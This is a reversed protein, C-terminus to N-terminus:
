GPSPVPARTSGRQLRYLTYRADRYAVPLAPVLASRRRDIVLWSAGCGRPIGLDGTRFFRREEGRRAYPRNRTTDAVHGPPANCVYVPAVAAIRYSSELDSYVTAGRPVRERLAQVLGATLPSPPRAPSPSWARLGHVFVPLLFLASAFAATREARARRLPGVALAAVAGGVAVWTAWAPGGGQLRYGFDGPYRSQFVIGATLALPAALPGALTALVGMGGAFAVGFPLFGALRRSQSLSVLDSFPAFAWPLLTLAFIALSAGAVYAAWRRASALGALPLLLLAAVAVAGSRSILEPALSFSDPARVRLQGAYQGLGRVREAASPSVSATSRVVPLLWAFFLGAPVVLAALALSGSRLDARTWALRVLLFGAFPIWLFVAYTPHVVALVLAAAAASALGGVTPRRVAAFALALAAPVLIQRSATAPLGLSTYAGGYGPAMVLLAVSAGAAVAAPAARAFLAHAAEYAALVAAPALISAEHLVVQSPDVMAVKAILALFGQWLPLAYGPHLGGDPFEGVATLSLADLSVLKRVRALHFLGDGGIEGAVRWLLLGLLIGGIWMAASGPVMPLRGRRLAFPMAVLGALLVLALALMLSAGAAFTAVLAGLVVALGWALTASLCRVGVARAVLAGPALVVATALALRLLLLTVGIM